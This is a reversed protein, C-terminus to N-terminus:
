SIETASIVQLNTYYTLFTFKKKQWWRVFYMQSVRTYVTAIKTTWCRKLGSSFYTYSLPDLYLWGPFCYSNMVKSAALQIHVLQKRLLNPSNKLNNNQLASFWKSHFLMFREKISFHSPVSPIHSTGGLSLIQPNSGKLSIEKILEHAWHTKSGIKLTPHFEGGWFSLFRWSRWYPTNM